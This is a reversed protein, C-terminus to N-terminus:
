RKAKRERRSRKREGKTEVHKVTKGGPNARWFRVWAPEEVRPELTPDRMM